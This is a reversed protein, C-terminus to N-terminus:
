MEPTTAELIRMAEDARRKSERLEAPTPPRQAPRGAPFIGTGSGEELVFPADDRREQTSQLVGGEPVSGPVPLAGQTSAQVPVQGAQAPQLAHLIKPLVNTVIGIIILLFVLKIMIIGLGADMANGFASRGRRQPPSGNRIRDEAAGLLREGVQTVMSRARSAVDNGVAAEPAPDPLPGLMERLDDGDVLQVHGQKAASEIAYRSFEGSTVLIAGSAGETIMVGILEHVANHTVQKANWHKCQVVIYADGKYLKLDIGGDFRTGSGGTGVHEVRYGQGRYYVALLAELRDWSVQTLADTRRHRVNKLM